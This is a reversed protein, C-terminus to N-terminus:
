EDNLISPTPATVREAWSLRGPGDTIVDYSFFKESPFEVTQEPECQIQIFILFPLIQSM